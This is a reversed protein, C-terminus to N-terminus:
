RINRIAGKISFILALLVLACGVIFCIGGSGINVACIDSGLERNLEAAAESAEKISNVLSIVQKVLGAGVVVITIINERWLAILCFLVTAAITFYNSPEDKWRIEETLTEGLINATVVAVPLFLPLVILICGVIGIGKKLLLGEGFSNM